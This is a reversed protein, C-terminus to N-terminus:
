RLKKRLKAILNDFEGLTYVRRDVIPTEELDVKIRITNFHKKDM